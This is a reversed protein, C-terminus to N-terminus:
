TLNFVAVCECLVRLFVSIEKVSVLLDGEFLTALTYL